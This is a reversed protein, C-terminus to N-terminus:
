NGTADAIAPGAPISILERAGVAAAVGVRLLLMSISRTKHLRHRPWIFLLGM